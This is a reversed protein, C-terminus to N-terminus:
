FVNAFLPPSAGVPSCAIVRAPGCCNGNVTYGSAVDAGSTRACRWRDPVKQHATRSTMAGGPGGCAGATEYILDGPAGDPGTYRWSLSGHLKLLKMGTPPPLSSFVLAFRRHPPPIPMPYLDTWPRAHRLGDPHLQGLHEPDEAPQGDAAYMRWALEVLNDYNFTIVTANTKQWFVVLRRLWNPCEEQEVARGQCGSLISSLADSVAFFAARNAEQDAASLWPPREILYSLWQEFNAAVATNAGPLNRDKLEDRVAESLANMMPMHENISRSFGAGLLYVPAM